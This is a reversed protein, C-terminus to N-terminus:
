ERFYGGYRPHYVEADAYGSRVHVAVDVQTLAAGVVHAHAEELLELAHLAVHRSTARWRVCFLTADALGAVIRADTIAEAPPTDLLVLDYDDRLTQLLRAMTASMLLGLANAESKGSPICDMGTTPDKRIAEAVSTQGRLYDVLGPPHGAHGNFSPHRIDCDLVIVHEGNMAALRGLARTVTTKGEKPRAATVAIIRPRDPWLSLGARLARLQEALASHPKRAAHDEISAGNLARRSLRPILALCPLGLVTRVDDGSHFTSDALERLYVLLLGLVIGFASAAAMWPGTRPFSPQGPILALSIEHADPTEITPQQATQQIRELVAQLQGRSAEANRLMADLPVQAIADRAIQAQQESLDRQLANVRERDARVDADIAAVVRGIERAVTRDVDALQANIARVDPHGAGLRGLMSQLEASLQDHRARLQVVSPAIAAQAAAGARGSAADLKGEAEALASRAHALNEGLLSIQESDLRAHMGEILGNQARYQAIAGEQQRVEKRLEDRREILLERARAAAGYKAGLQSKVYVDMASNAAAAAIVADEATFSVELVHSAKLPTVTLASRVADLTANREPDLGPGPPEAIPAPVPASLTRWLASLTQPLRSSPRLSANFEPNTLLNLRVAVQEVVLMGRLVEAQSAMVADTIPDVRLISQLERPKYESADYLLTGTATYRPTLQRIAVYALLPCLLMSALLLWKRRRLIALVATGNLGESGGADGGARATWRDRRVMAPPQTATEPRDLM